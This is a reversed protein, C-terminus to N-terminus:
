SKEFALYPKVKEESARIEAFLEATLEQENVREVLMGIYKKEAVKAAQLVAFTILHRYQDFPFFIVEVANSMGLAIEADQTGVFIV